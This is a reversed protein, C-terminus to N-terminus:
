YKPKIEPKAAAAVAAPKHRDAKFKPEDDDDRRTENYYYGSYYYYSSDSSVNINNLVVGLLNHGVKEVLQKARVAMTQPYKRYQIILLTLDVESVLISADSVGMIPPADFFVYDYRLKVEKIFERMATSNLIGLSSSPLKGSPLFDLGPLATTQIVEALKHQKLLYNTLGLSNSLNLRKHLSPRRLDSDVLLVRSGNQACIVALNLVTTSKGEGAGGSVVVITNAKDDKRSFMVNTRLVRYAEAHPSDAGEDLLFGVNQPIVGLVPAGLTREVDDITKVSTDLYEIFFALGFGMILGVIVGLAINLPINPRVPRENVEAPDTIDVANSSFLAADYTEQAIKLNLTNRVKEHEELNRLADLFVRVKEAVALQNSKAAHFLKTTEENKRRLTELDTKIGELIGSIRDNVQQESLELAARARIVETNQEGLDVRKLKLELEAKNHQQILGFLLEDPRITTMNLLSARLQNTTQRQLSAFLTEKEVLKLAADSQANDLYRVTETELTILGAASEPSVVALKLDKRLADLQQQAKYVTNTKEELQKRLSDIGAKTHRTRVNNRNEKYVKAIENAIDAAEQKDRSYARIEIYGTNRIQRPDIQRGLREFTEQVTLPVVLGLRATWKVHLQLNTVVTYLIEKSQIREFQSQIYYPDFQPAVNQGTFPTIDTTDKQVEMKVTSMYTKPMWQSVFATTLVVLLFVTLISLKRIRIIRWYDLFHLKDEATAATTQADM